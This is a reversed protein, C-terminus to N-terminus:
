PARTELPKIAVRVRAAQPADPRKLYDRADRLATERDQPRRGLKYARVGAEVLRVRAEDVQPHYPEESAFARWAERLRRAEADSRPEPSEALSRFRASALGSGMDRPRTTVEV